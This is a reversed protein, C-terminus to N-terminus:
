NHLQVTSLFDWFRFRIERKACAKALWGLMAKEFTHSFTKSELKIIQM